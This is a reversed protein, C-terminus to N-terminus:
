MTSITMIESDVIQRFDKKMLGLVAILVTYIDTIDIRHDVIEFRGGIGVIM